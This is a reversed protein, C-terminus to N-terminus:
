VTPLMTTELSRSHFKTTRAVLCQPRNSGETSTTPTEVQALPTTVPIVAGVLAGAAGLPAAHVIYPIGAALATADLVEQVRGVAVFAAGLDLGSPREFLRTFM